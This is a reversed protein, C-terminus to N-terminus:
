KQRLQKALMPQIRLASGPLFNVTLWTTTATCQAQIATVTTRPLLWPVDRNTTSWRLSSRIVVASFQRWGSWWGCYPLSSCYPVLKLIYLMSNEMYAKAARDFIRRNTLLSPDSASIVTKLPAIRIWSLKLIKKATYTHELLKFANRTEIWARIYIASNQKSSSDFIRM